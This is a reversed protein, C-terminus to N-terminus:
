KKKGLGFVSAVSNFVSGWFGLNASTKQANAANLSAVKAADAQAAAADTTAKAQAQAIATAATAANSSVAVQANSRYQEIIQSAQALVGTTQVAANAAITARATSGADTTVAVTQQEQISALGLLTSAGIQARKTVADSAIQAQQVGAAQIAAVSQPNPALGVFGSSSSRGALAIAGVILVGAGGAILLESKDM